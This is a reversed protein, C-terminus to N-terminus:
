SFREDFLKLLLQDPKDIVLSAGAAVLAEKGRFGWSVGVAPIGAAAATQIDVESDGVLLVQDKQLGWGAIIDLTTQPDPKVKLGERYGVIPDFTGAGFFHNTITEAPTQNKNTLVALRVGMGLLRLVVEKLNMYPRTKDLCHDRYFVTMVDLVRDVKEANDTGIARQAFMKLGNGIMQRCLDRSHPKYGLMKLANNMADTLDDLTDVLTGDLDFIIGKTKM